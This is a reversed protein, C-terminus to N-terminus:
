SSSHRHGALNSLAECSSRRPGRIPPTAALRSPSLRPRRSPSLRTQPPMAKPPLSTPAPLAGGPPLFHKPTPLKLLALLSM